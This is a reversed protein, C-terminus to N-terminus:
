HEKFLRGTLRAKVEAVSQILRKASSLFQVPETTQGTPRGSCRRDEVLEHECVKNVNGLIKENQEDSADRTDEVADMSVVHWRQATSVPRCSEEMNLSPVTFTENLEAVYISPFRTASKATRSHDWKIM